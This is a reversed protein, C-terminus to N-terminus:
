LGATPYPDEKVIVHVTGKVMEGANFTKSETEVFIEGYKLSKKYNEYSVSSNGM